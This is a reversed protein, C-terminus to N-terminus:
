RSNKIVNDPEYSM